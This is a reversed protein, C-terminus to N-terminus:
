GQCKDRLRNKEIVIRARCSAAECEVVRKKQNEIRFSAIGEESSQAACYKTWHSMADMLAAERAMAQRQVQPLDEKAHGEGILQLRDNGQFGERWASSACFPFLLLSFASLTSISLQKMSM